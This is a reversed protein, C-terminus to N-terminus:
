KIAVGSWLWGKKTGDSININKANLPIPQFYLQLYRKGCENRIKKGLKYGSASKVQYKQGNYEIYAKPSISYWSPCGSKRFVVITEDLSKVVIAIQMINDANTFNYNPFTTVNSNLLIGKKWCLFFYDDLFTDYENVNNNKGMNGWAAFAMYPLVNRFNSSNGSSSLNTKWLMTPSSIQKNDYGYINLIRNYLSVRREVNAFGTVGYSPNVSTMTNTTSNGYVSGNSQGYVSNGVRTASGYANGYASGTTTSTTSISSIGTQGWIPIPVTETYSENSIGYNVLICMDANIKDQTEIAGQLKLSTAVYNAYEQFEVDNSSVNKDGSEIYFTKGVMNYNGFSNISTKIEVGYGNSLYTNTGCSAFLILSIFFSAIFFSNTKIKHNKLSAYNKFHDITVLKQTFNQYM